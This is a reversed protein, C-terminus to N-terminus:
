LGKIFETFEDRDIPKKFVKKAGSVLAEECLTNQGALSSIAVIAANPNHEM